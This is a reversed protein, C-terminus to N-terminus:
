VKSPPILRKDPNVNQVKAAAKRSMGVFIFRSHPALSPWADIIIALDADAAASSSLVLSKGSSKTRHAPGTDSEFITYNSTASGRVLLQVANALITKRNAMRATASWTGCLPISTTMPPTRPDM